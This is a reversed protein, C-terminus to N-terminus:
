RADTAIGFAKDTELGTIWRIRDQDLRDAYFGTPRYSEIRNDTNLDVTLGAMRSGPQRQIYLDYVGSNLREALELPLKYELYLSAIEGPAVAIQGGFFTKGAESGSAAAPASFGEAKVLQSGAPVYVRTYTRYSIDPGTLNHGYAYNVKLRGFLGNANQNLSYSINKSVSEDVAAGTLNADVVMLYDGATQKIEGALGFDVALDQLPPQNFFLLINKELINEEMIDVTELWYDLPLSFLKIKLENLVRGVIEKDALVAPDNEGERLLLIFNDQNYESGGVTVPGVLRMLDVIFEPNLTIVGTFEGAFNDALTSSFERERGYLWEIRAAAAPWDPSWGATGLLWRNVGLNEALSAPPKINLKNQAAKDLSSVAATHLAALDGNATEAIGYVTPRGGGPRLEASNNLILLFEGKEPYGLLTPLIQSLPTLRSMFDRATRIQLKLKEARGQVPFFWPSLNVQELNLYALDLGASLGNLEPGSQYILRLVEKKEEVTLSSFGTNGAKDLTVAVSQGLVAGQNLTKSLIEATRALYILDTIENQVFPLRSVFFGVGAEELDTRVAQFNNEARASFEAAASFDRGSQILDVAQELNDRGALAQRYVNFFNGLSTGFIVLLLIGLGIIGYGFYKLVFFARQIKKRRKVAPVSNFLDLSKAAIRAFNINKSHSLKFM